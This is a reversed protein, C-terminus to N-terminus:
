FGTATAASAAEFPQTDPLCATGPAPLQQDLLYAAVYGVICSSKSQSGHGWGDLTLLRARPVERATIQANQYRTAPDFRTGIVLLPAAPRHTFPGAYRDADRAPWAACAASDYTWYAGFYPFRRDARRAARPWASPNHPNDTDTCAVAFKAELSNDYTAPPPPPPPLAPPGTLTYLAQLLAALTPWGSPNELIGVVLSVIDAYTFTQPGQPTPLTIPHRRARALLTALKREPDGPSFACRPGAQACLALFQQLTEHSGQDSRLRTSYPVTFGDGRGTAYAVPEVISDIMIARVRNPFLNAYTVGLYSGYAIGEYTLREDGVAQRLLDLDRAVNGTSMHRMITGNHRLCAQGFEALKAMFAVQQRHGVPFPPVGALFRREDANSAFCRIPSSRGVGRPDFGVLDLRAAVGALQLLPAILEVLDVGSGGPGGPNLFLSGMRHAPDSAPLRKLALSISPGRPHDYDLPV